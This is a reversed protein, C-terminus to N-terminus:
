ELSSHPEYALPWNVGKLQTFTHMIYEVIKVIRLHDKLGEINRLAGHYTKCQLGRSKSYNM